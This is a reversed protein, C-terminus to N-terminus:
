AEERRRRGGLLASLVVSVISIVLAGWFVPWFGDFTIGIGVARSIAGTLALMGANILLTGLGLTLIILPCTLFAVVPRIIANVLGFILAVTIIVGISNDILHIGPVLRIAAWIAVANIGWRILFRNLDFGERQRSM